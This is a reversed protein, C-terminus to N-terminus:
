LLGFFAVQLAALMYNTHMKKLTALHERLRAVAAIAKACEDMSIPPVAFHRAQIDQLPQRWNLVLLVNSAILHNGM